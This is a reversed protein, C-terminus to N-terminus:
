NNRPIQESLEMPNNNGLYDPKNISQAINDNYTINTLDTKDNLYFEVLVNNNELFKFSSLSLTDTDNLYNQLDLNFIKGLVLLIM